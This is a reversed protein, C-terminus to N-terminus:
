TWRLFFATADSDCCRLEYTALGAHEKRDVKSGNHQWGKKNDVWGGAVRTEVCEIVVFNRTFTNCIWGCIENLYEENDIDENGKYPKFCIATDFMGIDERSERKVIKM